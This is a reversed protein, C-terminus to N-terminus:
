HRLQFTRLKSLKQIASAETSWTSCCFLARGRCRAKSHACNHPQSAASVPLLAKLRCFDAVCCGPPQEPHWSLGQGACMSVM